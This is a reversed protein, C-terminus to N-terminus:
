LCHFLYYQTNVVCSILLKHAHHTQARLYLHQAHTITAILLQGCIGIHYRGNALHSLRQSKTIGAVISVQHHGHVLAHYFSQWEKVGGFVKNVIHALSIEVIQRPAGSDIVRYGFHLTLVRIPRKSISWFCTLRQSSLVYYFSKQASKQPSLAPLRVTQRVIESFTPRNTPRYFILGEHPSKKNRVKCRRFSFVVTNKSKSICFIRRFASAFSFSLFSFKSVM